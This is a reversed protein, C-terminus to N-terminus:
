RVSAKAQQIVAQNYTVDVGSQLSAIYSQELDGRLAQNLGTKTTQAVSAAPDAPPAVESVQLVLVQGSDKAPTSAVLGQPGSFAARMGAEGLVPLASQRTVASATQLSLGEVEAMDGFSQGKRVREALSQGRDVAMQVAEDQKWDATVRARVEDLPRERSPIVEAPALFVYSNGDFNVPPIDNGEDGTFVAGLVQQSSPITDVKTGDQTVGERSVPPVSVVKLGAQEAAEALPAGSQLSDSMTNYASTIRANTADRALSQRIDARVDDLPRVVEPEVATVNLIVPGFPGEVVGTPVGVRAGFAADALTPNGLAARDITGLDAVERGAQKAADALSRGSAIAQAAADATARDPFVVQQVARREPTTFQARNAEYYRAIEEDTVKDTEAMTAPTLAVYSFGRYEPARYTDQHETYYTSLDDDTPDSMSDAPQPQLVAYQVTRREGNYIGLADVFANPIVVDDAVAGLLQGRVASRRLDTLYAAESLGANALVARMTDRSFRGSADQFAKERQILTILGEDSVAIGDHEAKLDVLAGARLQALVTQDVGFMEAQESTPRRQLQQALRNLGQQYAQQYEAVSVRVDGAQLVTSGSGHSRLGDAIGWVVFSVALGGLLLKAVWGSAGRRMQNLM